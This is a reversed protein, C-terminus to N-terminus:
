EDKKNWIETQGLAVQKYHRTKAAHHAHLKADYRLHCRQCLAALNGAENNRVDHDLHAVTLVVRAGTIPHPAHNAAGCWECMNGARALITARITSWDSPYCRYDIPM